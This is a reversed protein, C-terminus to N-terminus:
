HAYQEAYNNGDGIYSRIFEDDTSVSAFTPDMRTWDEGDFSIAQQVWGKSRIFVDIWAHKVTGAYGTVLRCPIDRGRLMATMLAAYDFCIGTGSKLTEDVNPLSGPEVTMAKNEDYTVNGIVYDYIADLGEVDTADDPLLSRALRVAESNEDFDVYQNPYLYPYFPNDFAVEIDDWFLASYQSGEVQQYCTVMYSGEGDTLPLVANEGPQIFYSYTIGTTDSVLQVNKTKGDQDAEATIYGHSINSIDLLLPSSGLVKSGPAEPELVQLPDFLPPLTEDEKQGCGCLAFFAPLLMLLARTRKNHIKM